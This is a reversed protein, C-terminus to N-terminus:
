AAHAWRGLGRELRILGRDMALGIIGILIMGVIV